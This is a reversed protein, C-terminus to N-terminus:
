CLQDGNHLLIAPLPIKVVLQLTWCTNHTPVVSHEANFTGQLTTLLVRQVLMSHIICPDLLAHLWLLHLSSSFLQIWISAIEFAHWTINSIVLLTDNWDVHGSNVPPNTKGSPTNASCFSCNAWCSQKLMHSSYIQLHLPMQLGSAFSLWCRSEQPISSPSSLTKQWQPQKPREMFLEWISHVTPRIPGSHAWKDRHNSQKQQDNLWWAWKSAAEQQMKHLKALRAEEDKALRKLGEKEKAVAEQVWQNTHMWTKNPANAFSSIATMHTLRVEKILWSGIMMWDHPKPRVFAWPRQLM